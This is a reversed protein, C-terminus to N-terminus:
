RQQLKKLARQQGQKQQENLKLLAVHTDKYRKKLSLVAQRM